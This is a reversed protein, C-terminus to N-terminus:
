KSGLLFTIGLNTEFYQLNCGFGTEVLAYHFITEGNVFITKSVEYMVGAGTLFGMKIKYGICAKGSDTKITLTPEYIGVGFKCFPTTKSELPIMYKLFASCSFLKMHLIINEHDKLPFLSYDFNVGLSIHNSLYHEANVGLNVGIDAGFDNNGAFNRIPISAGVKPTFGFKGTLNVALANSCFGLVFVILLIGVFKKM